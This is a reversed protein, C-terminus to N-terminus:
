KNIIKYLLSNEDIFRYNQPATFSKDIHNKIESFTTTKNFKVYEKIKIANCVDKNKFYERTSAKKKENIEIKEFLLDIKESIIKEIIIKGTIAKVPSSCYIYIENSLDERNFNPIVRRFEYLKEGKEIQEVYKPQISLLTYKM